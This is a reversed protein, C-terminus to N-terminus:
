KRSGAGQRLITDGPLPPAGPHRFYVPFLVSVSVPVGHALAPTFRLERSGTVAASDLGPYGSSADVRTSESMVAGLSDIVLRLTVNGQVQREFLQPPYHFPLERNLMVPVADPGTGARAARAKERRDCAGGLALLALIALSRRCRM